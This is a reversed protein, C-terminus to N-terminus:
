RFEKVDKVRQVALDSLGEVLGLTSNEDEFFGTKLITNRIENLNAYLEKKKEQIFSDRGRMELICQAAKGDEFSKVKEEEIKQLAEDREKIAQSLLQKSIEFETKLLEDLKEAIVDVTKTDVVHYFQSAFRQGKSGQMAEIIEMPVSHIKINDSESISKIWGCGLHKEPTYNVCKLTGNEGVNFHHGNCKPCTILIESQNM